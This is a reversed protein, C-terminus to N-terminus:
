PAQVEFQMGLATLTFVKLTPDADFVVRVETTLGPQVAQSTVFGKEITATQEAAKFEREDGAKLLFDSLTFDRPSPQLNTIRMDAVLLARQDKIAAPNVPAFRDYPGFAVLTLEWGQLTVTAGVTPLAFRSTDGAGQQQPQPQQAIVARGIAALILLGLLGFCGVQVSKTV